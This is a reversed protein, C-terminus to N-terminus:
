RDWAVSRCNGSRGFSNITSPCQGRRTYQMGAFVYHLLAVYATPCAATEKGRTPPPSRFILTSRFVFITRIIGKRIADYLSRLGHVGQFRLHV